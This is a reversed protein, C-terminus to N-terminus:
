HPRSPFPATADLRAGPRRDAVSRPRRPSGSTRRIRSPPDDQDRERRRASRSRVQTSAWPGLYLAFLLALALLRLRFRM